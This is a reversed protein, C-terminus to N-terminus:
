ALVASGAKDFLIGSLSIASFFKGCVLLFEGPFGM